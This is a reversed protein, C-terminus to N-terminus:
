LCTTFKSSPTGLSYEQETISLLALRADLGLDLSSCSSLPSELECCSFFSSMMSSLENSLTSRILFLKCLQLKSFLFASELAFFYTKSNWLGLLSFTSGLFEAGALSRLILNLSLVKASILCEIPLLDTQSRIQTTSLTYWTTHLGRTNSHISSSFM